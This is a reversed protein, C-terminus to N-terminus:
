SPPLTPYFYILMINDQGTQGVLYGFKDQILNRRELSVFMAVIFGSDGDLRMSPFPVLCSM